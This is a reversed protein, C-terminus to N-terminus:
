SSYSYYHTVFDEIVKSLLFNKLSFLYLAKVIKRKGNVNELVTHLKTEREQFTYPRKYQKMITVIDSFSASLERLRGRRNDHM